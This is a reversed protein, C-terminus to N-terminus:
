FQFYIFQQQEGGWVFIVLIIFYYFMWRIPRSSVTNFKALAYQSERGIWEISFLMLIFLSLIVAKHAAPFDPISFFSTSFIGSLYQFAYGLSESRFFVWAIVTLSFTLSMNMIDRLNPLYKGQAVIDLRNRNTKMLLLPLFYLANLAGWFIFTWNAGHWLGSLLFIIFTNRIKTQVSGKSGGLPIYVYDRF